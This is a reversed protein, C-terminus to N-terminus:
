LRERLYQLGREIVPDKEKGLAAKVPTSTPIVVKIDPEIGQENISRGSPTYWLAVTLKLASGDPLVEYDQVSGKGFTKEGIVPGVKADQLAGAFIESASASGRNVLVVTKVNQLRHTGRSNHTIDRAITGKETVVVDGEKLWEGTLDVATDLFGGPNNRLDVILGRLGDARMKKLGDEFNLMTQDNFQTVRMLWIGSEEDIKKVTVSKIDIKARVIEVDRPADEEHGITLIVHTGARGRIRRVAEDLAMGFTDVRDIAFIADGAKIGAKEAPSEELPAIVLLQGAKLGIQAGIGDFTGALDTAFEAAVKPPFIVSYPDNLSAVLGQLAGYFMQVEDVPKHVYKNKVRDWVSWFLNFDAKSPLEREQTGKNLVVGPASEEAGIELARARESRAAAGVFFGGGFIIIAGILSLYWVLYKRTRTALPSLLSNGLM